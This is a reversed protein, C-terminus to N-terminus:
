GMYAAMPDAEPDLVTNEEHDGFRDDVEDQEVHIIGNKGQKIKGNKIQKELTKKMHKSGVSNDLMGKVNEVMEETTAAIEEESMVEKNNEVQSKVEAASRGGAVITMKKRGTYKKQVMQESRRFTQEMKKKEEETKKPVIFFYERFNFKNEPHDDALQPYNKHNELSFKDDLFPAEGSIFILCKKPDMRRIQSATMLAASDTNFSQSDSGKSGFSRSTNKVDVTKNGLLESVRKLDDADQIALYMQTSCGDIISTYDKDYMQKLQGLSQIIVMCSIDYKRCTNLISQFNPIEGTNAFEDLMCRVNCPLRENKSFVIEGNRVCDMFLEKEQKSQFEQLVQGTQKDRLRYKPLPKIGQENEQQFEPAFPDDDDDEVRNPDLYKEREKELDEKYKEKQATTKFIPSRLTTNPGKKIMWRDKNEASRNYLAQFLQTYMMAALFNYTPKESPAIIFLAQKRDGIEELHVTDDAVLNIVGPINFPAMRVGASILISKLTKGTGQKFITYNKVAIHEPPLKNFMRDLDSELDEKQESVKAMLLMRMVENLNQKEPQDKYEHIIYYFISLFLCQEAKAFFQDGKNAKSDDTNKMMCDVLTLVDDDSKIYRFPNYQCSFSMDDLNFVKIHYGHEMLAKGSARILEGSPDTIVYSSNFQLLNPKLVYRTKGSGPSGQILMNLNMGWVDEMNLRTKEGLIANGIKDSNEEPELIDPKGKPYVRNMNHWKWDNWKENGKSNRDLRKMRENNIYMAFVAGAYVLFIMWSYQFNYHWVYYSDNAYLRKFNGFNNIANLLNPLLATRPNNGMEYGLQLHLIVAIPLGIIGTLLTLQHPNTKGDPGRGFWKNLFEKIAEKIKM